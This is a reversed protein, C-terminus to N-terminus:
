APGPRRAAWLVRASQRILEDRGVAGAYLRGYSWTRELLSLCTVGLLTTGPLTTEPLATEPLATEPGHEGTSPGNSGASLSEGFRRCLALHRKMGAVRIEEDEEAAQTWAFTFSGHVDLFDFYEAVWARLSSCSTTHDTLRAVLMDGSSAAGAGVALLVERKSPFYTYFSARSVEAVRAIEDITTGSYGHSLLVDRTADLIREITRQARPGLGEAPQRLMPPPSAGPDAQAADPTTRLDAM